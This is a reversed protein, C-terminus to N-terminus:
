RGVIISNPNREVTDAFSRLSSSAQALNQLASEIDARSHTDDAVLGNVSALTTRAQQLAMDASRLTARLDVRTSATLQRVDGLTARLEGEVARLSSNAQDSTQRASQATATLERVLPRADENLNAVFKQTEVLSASLARLSDRAEPSSVLANINNVTRDISALLDQVPLESLQKRLVDFDSQVSPIEPVSPDAGVLQAPTDPLLDLEVLMQGTVLSQMSLKARMGAQAAVQPSQALKGGVWEVRDPDIEFYVPIRATLNRTDLQLRVDVVTGVKVGRFNVPAGVNLGGVSGDFYTVWLRKEKFLDGSGFAFLAGILLVIGGLVFGGILSPSYKKGM